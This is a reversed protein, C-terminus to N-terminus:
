DVQALLSEGLRRFREVWAAADQDGAAAREAYYELATRRMEFWINQPTWFVVEFPLLNAVRIRQEIADLLETNGPDVSFQTMLGELVTRLAFELTTTDLSVKAVRVQELLNRIREVDMPNAALERRLMSNLAFEAATAMPKPLPVGLDGLFQILAAHDAHIQRYAAEAEEMTSDFIRHLVSRQDDRFLSKLSYSAPDLERDLARLTEPVDGKSFEDTLRKALAEYSDHDECARIGCSLSHDGLHLAAVMFCASEWTIESSVIIRAVALKTRGAEFSRYDEAHIAYCYIRSPDVHPKFLSSIGYHAAVKELTVTTPRVWKEYIVRGDGHEPLNSRARALAELFDTELDDDWFDKALQIARAAYQIVQVTEIGSIDDFFWGCSTYMLMAHRQLEMLKLVDSAESRNLERTSHRRLFQCINAESRDLLVGIYDNRAEWPDKLLARSAQEFCVALKDRLADLAERLPARWSQNWGERGSNCGCNSRWREVGHVCSWSTNEFIEAEHAPPYKELYEGYNTLSALQNSQIHELAYTLAMEGRHHHHGYTEGDTAINVLENSADGDRFAGLLREAFKEGNDLLREFAIAHSIPGDYFFVTISREPALQVRYAMAPDVRGGSVDSWDASGAPRVRSAQQPSLITFKIGRQAMVDLSELSAATEPLWMGEPPRGFRSEFDRVGWVVQTIKDRANALPLIMHSYAQAIASGHGSFRGISERDGDVIARHTLPSAAELWSLLTPGFNFSIRGYNNVIQTVRGNANLVRSAGNPAYCEATIRENWDHYPYASDQVEVAELWPNERPPQYFHGHICIYRM